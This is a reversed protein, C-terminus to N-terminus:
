PDARPLGGSTINAVQERREKRQPQRGEFAVACLMAEKVQFELYTERM